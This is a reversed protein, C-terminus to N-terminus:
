PSTAPSSRTKSSLCAPKQITAPSSLATQRLLSRSAPNSGRICGCDAPDYRGAPDQYSHGEHRKEITQFKVNLGSLFLVNGSAEGGPKRDDLERAFEDQQRATMDRDATVVHKLNPNGRATEWAREM